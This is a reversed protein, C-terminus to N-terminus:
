VCCFNTNGDTFHRFLQFFSDRKNSMTTRLLNPRFKNGFIISKDDLPQQIACNDMYIRM